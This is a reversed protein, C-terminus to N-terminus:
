RDAVAVRERRERADAIEGADEVAVALLARPLVERDAAARQLIKLLAALELQRSGRTETVVRDPGVQMAAHDRQLANTIGADVANQDPLAEAERRRALVARDARDGTGAEVDRDVLAHRHEAGELARHHGVLAAGCGGLAAHTDPESRRKAGRM